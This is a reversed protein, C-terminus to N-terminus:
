MKEAKNKKKIPNEGVHKKVVTLGMITLYAIFVLFAAVYGFPNPIIKPLFLLMVGFIIIASLGIVVDLIWDTRM